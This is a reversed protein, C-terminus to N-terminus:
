RFIQIPTPMAAARTRPRPPPIWGRYERPPRPGPTFAGCIPVGLMMMPFGHFTQRKDKQSRRRRPGIPFRLERRDARHTSEDPASRGTCPTAPLKRSPGAADTPPERLPTSRLLQAQGLGIRRNDRRASFGIRRRTRCHETESPLSATTYREPAAFTRASARCCGPDARSPPPRRLEKSGGLRRHRSASIATRRSPVHRSREDPRHRPRIPDRIGGPRHQQERLADQERRRAFEDQAARVPAFHPEFQRTRFGDRRHARVVRRDARAIRM